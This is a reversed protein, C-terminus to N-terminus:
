RGTWHIFKRELLMFLKNLTYGLLGVIILTAYLEAVRYTLYADYIRQGLGGQTGIFMETVLIVILAIPFAVRLGTAIHPLAEWLTVRLAIQWGRAGLIKAVRYRTKSAHIVGDAASVLIIWFCVFVAVAVKALNGIGFFLLFLPFLATSPLSRFFDVVVELARYVRVSLGLLLGLPIALSAALTFGLLTRCLTAAIDPWIEGSLLM